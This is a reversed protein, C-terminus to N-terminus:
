RISCGSRYIACLPVGAEQRLRHLVIWRSFKRLTSGAPPVRRGVPQQLFRRSSIRYGNIVQFGNLSLSHNVLMWGALTRPDVLEPAIESTPQHVLVYFGDPPSDLVTIDALFEELEHRDQLAEADMALTVFLPRDDGVSEWQERANRIFSKAIVAEVSNFRQRIVIGPAIAATVALQYQFGLCADLDARVTSESELQSRRRAEFFTYEGSDLKGLRSEPDHALVSAYYQPDFLREAWPFEEAMNSLLQTARDFAFDKPSIIAGHIYGNVLGAIIRDNEGSGTGYGQQAYVRM